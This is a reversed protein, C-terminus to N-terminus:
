FARLNRGESVPITITLKLLVFTLAEEQRRMTHNGLSLWMSERMAIERCCNFWHRCAALIFPINPSSGSILKYYAYIQHRKTIFIILYLFYICINTLLSHTQPHLETTSHKGPMYSTRHKIGLLLSYVVSILSSSSFFLSNEM